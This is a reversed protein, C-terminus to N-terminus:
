FYSEHVHCIGALARLKGRQGMMKEQNKVRTTDAYELSGVERGWGATVNKLYFTHYSFKFTTLVDSVNEKLPGSTLCHRFIAQIKCRKNQVAM